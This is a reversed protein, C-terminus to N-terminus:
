ITADININLIDTPIKFGLLCCAKVCEISENKFIVAHFQKMNKNTPFFMCKTKTPNLSIIVRHDVVVVFFHDM